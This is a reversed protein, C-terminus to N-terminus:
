APGHKVAHMMHMSNVVPLRVWYCLNKNSLREWCPLASMHRQATSVKEAQPAPPSAVNAPPPPSVWYRCSIPSCTVMREGSDSLFMGHNSEGLLM